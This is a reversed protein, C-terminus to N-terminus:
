PRVVIKGVTRRGGLDTLAEPVGALSIERAIVPRIQEDMLLRMVQGHVGAVMARGSETGRYAGMYVGVVSYSKYLAHNAPITQLEGSAFGVVLLRGDVAVCRRSRDFVQGGVPDFVVDAGNGGTLEKVRAVFDDAVYDIVEHAGLERCLELKDPGGATAIVRAGALAGIQVAASGTGGAAAHVLLVEGPQLNARHHLAVHATNFPILTAAADVPDVADPVPYMGHSRFITEEALGGHPLEPTAVMRRGLLSDDVGPGVAVVVGCAELGPTFPFEPHLQYRGRCLLVDPLNLAAAEVRVRVLGPGPEPVPVDDRLELVDAPEGHRAVQLARM